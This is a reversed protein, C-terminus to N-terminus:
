CECPAYPEGNVTLSGQIRVEGRLEIEGDSEFRAPTFTAPDFKETTYM